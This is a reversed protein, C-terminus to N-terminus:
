TMSCSVRAIVSTLPMRTSKPTVITQLQSSSCTMEQSRCFATVSSKTASGITKWGSSRRASSCRPWPLNRPGDTSKSSSSACDTTRSSALATLTMDALLVPASMTMSRLMPRLSMLAVPMWISPRMVASKRKFTKMGFVGSCSPAAMTRPLRRIAAPQRSGSVSFRESEVSSPVRWRAAMPRESCHSASTTTTLSSVPVIDTASFPRM